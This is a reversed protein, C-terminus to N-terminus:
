KSNSAANTERWAVVLFSATKRRLHNKPKIKHCKLFANWLLYVSELTVNWTLHGCLRSCRLLKSAICSAHARGLPVISWAKSNKSRSHWSGLTVPELPNKRCLEICLLLAHSRFKSKCSIRPQTVLLALKILNSCSLWCHRLQILFESTQLDRLPWSVCSYHFSSFVVIIGLLLISPPHMLMAEFVAVPLHMTKRKCVACATSCWWLFCTELSEESNHSFVTLMHTHTRVRSDHTKTSYSTWYAAATPM